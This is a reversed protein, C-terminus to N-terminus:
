AAVRRRALRKWVLIMRWGRAAGGFPKTSFSGYRAVVSLRRQLRACAELELPNWHHFRLREAIPPSGDAPHISVSTTAQQTIPDFTDEAEGWRVEVNFDGRGANWRPLTSAETPAEGLSPPFACEMIYLGGVNLHRGAAVLHNVMDDITLLHSVSDLMTVILDFRRHLEFRRMDCRHVDLQVKEERARRLALKCMAPSADLAHAEIGLRSFARAHEGPGAALELMSRMPRDAHLAFWRRIVAVEKDVDRYAFAAEYALARSYFKGTADRSM